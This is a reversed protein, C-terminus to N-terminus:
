SKCKDQNDGGCMVDSRYWGNGRWDIISKRIASGRDIGNIELSENSALNYKM